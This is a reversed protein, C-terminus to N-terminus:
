NKIGLLFAFITDPQGALGAFGLAATAGNLCAM